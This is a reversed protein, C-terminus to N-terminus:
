NAVLKAVIQNLSEHAKESARAAQGALHGIGKQLYTTVPINADVLRKAYQEGEARLPDNEALIITAKPLGSLDQSELPFAYPNSIDDSSAIYETVFEDSSQGSVLPNLLIQQAIKPGSRDRSLLTLAAALTGGASDGVVAIPADPHKAALWQLTEYCEELQTPFKAEPANTYGVSVVVAKSHSCLYRALNDHTDLNGAVWCGGHIMLVIQEQPADPYYLRLPVHRQMDVVCQVEPIAAKISLIRQNIQKRRNAKM